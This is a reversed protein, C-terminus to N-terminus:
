KDEKKFGFLENLDTISEGIPYKATQKPLIKALIPEVDAWVKLLQHTTNVSNLVSLAKNAAEKRKLIADSWDKRATLLAQLHANGHTIGLEDLSMNHLPSPYGNPVYVKVCRWGTAIGKDIGDNIDNDDFTIGFSDSYRFFRNSLFAFSSLYSKFVNYYFTHCAKEYAQEKLEEAKYFGGQELLATLISTRLSNTLKVSAM